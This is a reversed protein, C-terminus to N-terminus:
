YNGQYFRVWNSFLMEITFGNEEDFEEGKHKDYFEQLNEFSIFEEIGLGNIFNNWTWKEYIVWPNSPLEISFKDNAKKYNRQYFRIWNSFLM